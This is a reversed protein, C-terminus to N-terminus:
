TYAQVFLVVHSCVHVGECGDRVIWVTVGM